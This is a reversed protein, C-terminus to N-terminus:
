KAGCLSYKGANQLCKHIRCVFFMDLYVINVFGSCRCSAVLPRRNLTLRLFETFKIMSPLFKFTLPFCDSKESTLLLDICLLLLLLINVAPLLPVRRFELIFVAVLDKPCTSCNSNELLSSSPSHGTYKMECDNVDKKRVSM